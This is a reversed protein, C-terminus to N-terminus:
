GSGRVTVGAHQGLAAAARGGPAPAGSAAPASASAPRASTIAIGAIQFSAAPPQQAERAPGPSRPTRPAAPRPPVPGPTSPPAAPLPRSRRPAPAPASPSPAPAPAATIVGASSSSASAPTGARRRPLDRRPQRHLHAQRPRQHGARSRVSRAAPAAAGPLRGPIHDARADDSDSASLKRCTLGHHVQQGPQAPLDAGDRQGARRVQRCRPRRVPVPGRDPQARPARRPRATAPRGSARAAPAPWPRCRGCRRRGWPCRGCPSRPCDRLAACKPRGALVPAGAAGCSRM